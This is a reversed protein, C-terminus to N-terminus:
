FRTDKLSSIPVYGMIVDRLKKFLQVQLPKTFFYALMITLPFYKVKLEGKDVRDKVFFYRFNIHRSNGTCSNRGNKLMLITSKKDQYLINDKIKYGQESMFMTSCLNYPIYDSTGVLEAETSSKVNLRQKSCKAHLVGLGLSM